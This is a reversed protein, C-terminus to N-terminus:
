FDLNFVRDGLTNEKKQQSSIQPTTTTTTTSKTPPPSLPPPPPRSPSPPIRPSAFLCFAQVANTHLSFLSKNFMSGVSMIHPTYGFVAHSSAKGEKMERGKDRGRPIINYTTQNCYSLMQNQATDRISPKPQHDPAATTGCRQFCSARRLSAFPSSLLYSCLVPAAALSLRVLRVAALCGHIHPHPPQTTSGSARACAIEVQRTRPTTYFLLFSSPFFVFLQVSCSIRNAKREKKGKKRESDLECFFALGL